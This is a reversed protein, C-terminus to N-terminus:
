HFFATNCGGEKVWKVKVKQGWSVSEKRVVDALEGKLVEREGTM